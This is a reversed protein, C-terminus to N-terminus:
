DSRSLIQRVDLQQLAHGIVELADLGPTEIGDDDVGDRLVQRTDLVQSSHQFSGHHRHARAPPYKDTIHPIQRQELGKVRRDLTMPGLTSRLFRLEPMQDFVTNLMFSLQHDVRGEKRRQLILVIADAVHLDEQLPAVGPILECTKAVVRKQMYRGPM